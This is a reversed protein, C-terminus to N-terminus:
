PHPLEFRDPTDINVFVYDGNAFGGAVYTGAWGLKEVLAQAAVAYAAAGSKSHDFPVTIEGAWCSAKVRAGRTASAHLFKTSIAQTM